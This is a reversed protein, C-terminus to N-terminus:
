IHKINMLMLTNSDKIYSRHKIYAKYENVNQAKTGQATIRLARNNKKKYVCRARCGLTEEFTIVVVRSQTCPGRQGDNGRALDFATDHRSWM